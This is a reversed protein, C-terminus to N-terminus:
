PRAPATRPSVEGNGDGDGDGDGDGARARGKLQRVGSVLASLALVTFALWPAWPGFRVFPSTGSALPVEYVYATREDTGLWRGVKRGEADYVASVGTLTAHVSPRWTEAARIAALSAHQEPAWSGQFTSTASQAVILDVDRRALARSMDPFASEFCVLPGVSLAGATLVVPGDGRQRNESAAESVGTVWGLLARAPVYEGFPVLRTKDYDQGTPGEPGVLVSTKYIGRGDTRRADVNVLVDAGVSRSLAGLREALDPRGALDFGVSSEGWVVLDLDRGALARTLEEGRDFRVEPGHVVGPQVVAVRATGSRAPVPAWAWVAGVGAALAVLSAVAPTRVAPVAILVALATNAAVVVLTVLWVGGVSAVVLAPRVQWQSAGLLGWPGGLSELSRVLEIMLWGCPLLAVASLTRARGPEGHLLWWVLRGWPAWLLGLLAGLLVIFVHLNPLLWHHVAIMFGTGALWGHVTALRATGAARLLLILPVLAVYALWWLSPEPFALAPLAGAALAAAGRIAPRGAWEPRRGVGLEM